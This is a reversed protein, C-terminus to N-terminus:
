PSAAPQSTKHKGLYMNTRTARLEHGGFCVTHAQTSLLQRGATVNQAKWSAHQNTPCRLRMGAAARREHMLVEEELEAVALVTVTDADRPSVMADSDQLDLVSSPKRQPRSVFANHDPDYRRVKFCSM